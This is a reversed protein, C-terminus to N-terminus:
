CGVIRKFGWFESVEEEGKIRRVEVGGMVEEINLTCQKKEKTFISEVHKVLHTGMTELRQPCFSGTTDLYLSTSSLGGLSKPLSVNVSNVLSRTLIKKTLRLAALSTLRTM